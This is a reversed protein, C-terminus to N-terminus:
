GGQRGVYNETFSPDFLGDLSPEEEVLGAEPLFAAVKEAM